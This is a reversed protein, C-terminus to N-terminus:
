ALVPTDSSLIWNIDVLETKKRVQDSLVEEPCIGEPLCKYLAHGDECETGM